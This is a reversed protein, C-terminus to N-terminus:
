LKRRERNKMVDGEEPWSLAGVKLDYRQKPKFSDMGMRADFYIRSSYAWHTFMLWM